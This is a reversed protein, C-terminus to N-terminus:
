LLHHLMQAEPIGGLIFPGRMAKRPRGPFPGFDVHHSPSKIKFM